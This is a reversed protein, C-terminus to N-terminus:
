RKPCPCPLMASDNNYLSPTKAASDSAALGSAAFCGCKGALALDHMKEVVQM